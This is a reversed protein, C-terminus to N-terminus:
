DKAQRSQTAPQGTGVQEVIRTITVKAAKADIEAKTLEVVGAGVDKM